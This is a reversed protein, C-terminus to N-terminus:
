PFHQNYHNALIIADYIDVINDGNIDANISWNPNGPKSNYVGALVIADYIDVTFDGNIDGRITIVVRTYFPNDATSNEGFVSPQEHAGIVFNGFAFQTTNWAFTMTTSEGSALTVNELTGILTENAFITINLTELCDVQSTVTVNVSMPIGRGVINKDTTVGSVRPRHLTVQMTNTPEVNNLKDTSYYEITYNGDKLRYLCFPDTYNQWGSDYTSNYIRYLTDDIDSSTASAFFVGDAQQYLRESIPSLIFQTTSTVFISNGRFLKPDTLSLTTEPPRSSLGTLSAFQEGTLKSGVHLTQYSGTGFQDLLITTGLEGNALGNWDISYTHSSNLEVPIGTAEFTTASSNYTMMLEVTYEGVSGSSFSLTYNDSAGVIFFISLWDSAFYINGGPIESVLSGERDGLVRGMSDVVTMNIPDGLITEIRGGTITDGLIRRLGNVCSLGVDFYAKLLKEFFDIAVFSFKEAQLTPKVFEARKWPATIYLLVPQNFGEILVTPLRYPENSKLRISGEFADGFAMSGLKGCCTFPVIVFSGPLSTPDPVVSLAIPFLDDYKLGTQLQSSDYFGQIPTGRTADYAPILIYIPSSLSNFTGQLIAVPSVGATWPKEFLAYNSGLEKLLMMGHGGKEVAILIEDPNHFQQNIYDNVWMHHSLIMKMIRSAFDTYPKNVWVTISEFDHEHEDPVVGLFRYDNYAYYIWYQVVYENPGISPDNDHTTVKFYSKVGDSPRTGAQYHAKNNSISTDDFFLGDVPFYQEDSAFVLKINERHLKVSITDTAVSSSGPNSCTFTFYHSGSQEATFEETAYTFHGASPHGLNCPQGDLSAGYNPPDVYQGSSADTVEVNFTATQFLYCVLENSSSKHTISVKYQSLEIKLTIPCSHIISGYLSGAYWGQVNLGYSDPIAASTTTITLTSYATGGSSLQVRSPSFTMTAGSLTVGGLSLEVSESFGNISTLTISFSASKGPPVSEYSRSVSMSFDPVNATRLTITIRVSSSGVNTSAISSIYGNKSATVTYSGSKLGTFVADGGNDTFQGPIGPITVAASNIPSGQSDQVHVFLGYVQPTLLVKITTAPQNSSLTIRAYATAYGAKSVTVSYEQPPLSFQANGLKDTIGSQGGALVTAGSIVVGTPADEVHVTLSSGSTQQKNMVINVTTDSTIDYSATASQYGYKSVIMTMGTMVPRDILTLDGWSPTAFEGYINGSSDYITGQAGDVPQGFQDRVHITLTYRLPYLYAKFPTGVEIYQNEYVRPSEAHPFPGGSYGKASITVNHNGTSLSPFTLTGSAGTVGSLSDVIVKAGIIPKETPWSGGDNVAIVIGRMVQLTAQAVISTQHPDNLTATVNIAYTGSPTSTSTSIFLTSYSFDAAGGVTAPVFYGNIGKPLTSLSLNASYTSSILSVTYATGGGPVVKQLTPSVTPPIVIIVNSKMLPYHDTNNEDIVYPTDSIGDSGPVNQYPGSYLDTGKYDSWFNGGSPYGDDWINTSNATSVQYPNSVFSNHFIFNNSSSYDILIGYGNNAVNNGSLTNNSSSYDILIGYGNNAVNNGSLTNNSSSGLGIGYLNNAVNNGSLTNDSSSDILIGWSNNAVNNDYISNSSCDWLWIGVLAGSSFNTIEANKITVHSRGELIFGKGLAGNGQVTYGAGDVVISDREIRISGDINGTFTYTINDVTSIPASSPDISGDARIFIIGSAKVPQINFASALASIVLLSVMIVSVTKGYL